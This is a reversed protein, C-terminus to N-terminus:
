SFFDSFNLVLEIFGMSVDKQMEFLLQHDKVKAESDKGHQGSRGSEHLGGNKIYSLIRSLENADFWIGHNACCDIVIGSRGSYNKRQM